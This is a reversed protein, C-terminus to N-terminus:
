SYWMEAFIVMPNNEKRLLRSACQSDAWSRLKKETFPAASNPIICGALGSLKHTFGCPPARPPELAYAAAKGPSTGNAPELGATRRTQRIGIPQLIAPFPANNGCIRSSRILLIHKGVRRLVGASGGFCHVRRRDLLPYRAHAGPALLRAKRRGGAASLGTPRTRAWRPLM